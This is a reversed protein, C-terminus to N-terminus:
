VKKRNQVTGDKSRRVAAASPQSPQLPGRESVAAGYALAAPLTARSAERIEPLGPRRRPLPAPALYGPGDPRQGLNPPQVGFFPSLGAGSEGSNGSEHGAARFLTPYPFRTDTRTSRPPRRIM